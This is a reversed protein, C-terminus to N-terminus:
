EIPKLMFLQYTILAELLVPNLELAKQYYWEAKNLGTPIVRGHQELLRRHFGLHAYSPAYQPDLEISKQLMEVALKHGENSQPYSIGRLYYEFALASNPIDRHHQNLTNQKFNVGLGKAVQQAVRDQLSFTDSYNVQMTERWVLHNSTVEIMEVNLRIIDNELLFNGNIVYDAQLTKGIDIPDIIQGVYKRISGAPRIAYKELYTLDSIIQNALAFGLYDSDTNPKNNAFPLVAIIKQGAIENDIVVPTTPTGASPSAPKQEDHNQESQQHYNFYVLILVTTTTLLLVINRSLSSISKKIPLSANDTIIRAVWQYGRSHITKIVQQKTGDDGLVKRASKINNNISTDSVVRGQWIHALLEDRSVVKDKNQILYVILNFVQPEVQTEVDKVLLKYNNSDITIHNFQYIM